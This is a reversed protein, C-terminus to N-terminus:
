RFSTAEIISTRVGSCLSRYDGWFTFTFAPLFRDWLTHLRSNYCEIKYIWQYSMESGTKTILIDINSSNPLLLVLLSVLLIISNRPESEYWRKHNLVPGSSTSGSWFLSHRFPLAHIPVRTGLIIWMSIPSILIWVLSVELRLNQCFYGKLM